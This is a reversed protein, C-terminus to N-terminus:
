PQIDWDWKIKATKSFFIKKGSFKKRIKRPPFHSMRKELWKQTEKELHNFKLGEQIDWGGLPIKTKEAEVYHNGRAREKPQKIVLGMQEFKKLWGYARSRGCGSEQMFTEPDLMRGEALIAEAFTWMTKFRTTQGTWTGMIIDQMHEWVMFLDEPFSVLDGDIVVRHKYHAKTCARVANVLKNVDRRARTLETLLAKLSEAYPIVVHQPSEQWIQKVAIRLLKKEQETNIREKSLKSAEELKRKIVKNTQKKSADTSLQWTRNELEDSTEVETTTSVFNDIETVVKQHTWKGDVKVTVYTELKGESMAVKMDYETVNEETEGRSKYAAREAFYLTGIKDMYRLVKASTGTVKVWSDKPFCNLVADMITNKGSATDGGLELNERMLNLLFIAVKNSEEGVVERTADLISPLINENELLKQAANIEESTFTEKEKYAEPMQTFFYGYPEKVRFAQAVTKEIDRWEKGTAPPDNKQNWGEVIRLTEEESRGVRRWFTAIKLANNNRNGEGSGKMLEEIDLQERHKDPEFKKVVKKIKKFVWEEFDGEAHMPEAWNLVKYTDGSPHLSPPAIIYAGEGQIDLEVKGDHIRIIRQPYDIRFFVHLGGGGTETVLTQKLIRSGMIKYAQKKDEFDLVVLNGSIEGCIICWNLKGSKLWKQIKEKTPKKTQYPKWEDIAPKKEGHIAPFVSFGYGVYREVHFAFERDPETEKLTKKPNELKKM